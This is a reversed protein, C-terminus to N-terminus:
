IHICNKRGFLNKKWHVIISQVIWDVEIFDLYFIQFMPDRTFLMKLYRLRCYLAHDIESMKKEFKAPLLRELQLKPSAFM